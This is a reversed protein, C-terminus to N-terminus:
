WAWNSTIAKAAHSLGLLRRCVRHSEANGSGHMAGQFAAQGQRDVPGHFCRPVGTQEASRLDRNFPVDFVTGHLM